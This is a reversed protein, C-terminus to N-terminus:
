FNRLNKDYNFGGKFDLLQIAQLLLTSIGCNILKINKICFMLILFWILTFFISLSKLIRRRKKCKIPRNPNPKPAKTSILILTILGLLFYVNYSTFSISPAIYSTVIFFATTFVLCELTTSFHLGGAFLRISMLILLSFMFYKLMGISFFIILLIMLKISEGLVVKLGYNIKEVDEELTYSNYKCIKVTALDALKSIM